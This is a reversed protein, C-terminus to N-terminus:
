KGAAKHKKKTRGTLAMGGLVILAAGGLLLWLTMNSNDGTQPSDDQKDGGSSDSKDAIAFYNDGSLDFVLKGDQTSVSATNKNGAANVTYVTIDGYGQPKTITVTFPEEIKVTNGNEDKFVVYYATFEGGGIIGSLWSYADKDAETLEILYACYGDYNNGAFTLVVSAGSAATLVARGGTIQSLRMNDPLSLTYKAYVDIDKQGGPNLSAKAACVSVPAALAMVALLLLIIMKKM